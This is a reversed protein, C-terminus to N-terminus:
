PARRTRSARGAAAAAGCPRSATGASRSAGEVVPEAVPQAATPRGVLRARRRAAPRVTARGPAPRRRAAGGRASKASSRGSRNTNAQPAAPRGAGRCGRGVSTPSPSRVRTAERPATAAHDRTSPAVPVIPRCTAAHGRRARRRRGRARARGSGCRDAAAPPARRGSAVRCAAARCEVADLPQQQERRVPGVLVQALRRRDLGRDGGAHLPDHLDGAARGREARVAGDGVATPWQRVSCSISADPRRSRTGAARREEHLVQETAAGAHGAAQEGRREPSAGIAMTSARSTAAQATAASSSSRRGVAGPVEGARAADREGGIARADQPAASRSRGASARRACRHAAAARRGGLDVVGDPM